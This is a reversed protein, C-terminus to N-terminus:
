SRAPGCRGLQGHHPRARAPSFQYDNLDGVVVVNAKKDIALISAVFNHVAAAQGARQLESSRQPYQFRGDANQDGLKSDFHNAVVFVDKGGFRFQGVLPKRSSSWVPNNPDIRGPSLTLAPKGHQKIM